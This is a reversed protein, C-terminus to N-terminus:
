EYHQDGQLFQNIWAVAEQQTDCTEVLPHFSCVARYLHAVHGVLLVPKSTKDLWQKLYHQLESADLAEYGCIVLLSSNLAEAILVAEQVDLYHLFETYQNNALLAYSLLLPLSSSENATSSILLIHMGHALQRQRYQVTYLYEALVTKFFALRAPRSAGEEKLQTFLPLFLEDGLMEPPYLALLDELSRELQRRNFLGITKDLQQQLNLWVSDVAIDNSDPTQTSLIANVKSIALGRRLWLQIEKVRDVDDKSYLRHGKQTRQPKLLGYRREWARLTVTNIGTLRSIERIPIFDSEATHEAQVQYYPFAM